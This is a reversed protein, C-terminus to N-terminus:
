ADHGHEDIEDHHEEIEDHHEEYHEEQEHGHGFYEHTWMLIGTMFIFGLTILTASKWVSGYNKLDGHVRPLLDSAALFLLNGAAIGTLLWIYEEAHTALAITIITGLIVSSASILNYLAAKTRSFGARVLVGFEVVEQPAEHLAIGIAAAIGITPDVLFAGGLIVGDAANHIADGILLLVAAGRRDCDEEELHHYWEHLMSSLIYFGIFGVAIAIGGYEPSLVLTEPILEFLILSLFVGVAVPIVYKQIRMLQKNSGFFLVGTLSVLAIGVAALIPELIM